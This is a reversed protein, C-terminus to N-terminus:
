QATMGKPLVVQGRKDVLFTDNWNCQRCSLKVIRPFKMAWVGLLYAPAAVVIAALAGAYRNMPIIVFDAQSTVVVFVIALFLAWVVM